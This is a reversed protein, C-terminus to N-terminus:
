RSGFFRKIQKLKEDFVMSFYADKLVCQGGNYDYELYLSYQQSDNKDKMVLHLSFLSDRSYFRSKELSMGHKKSDYLFLGLKDILRMGSAGDKLLGSLCLRIKAGADPNENVIKSLVAGSYGAMAGESIQPYGPGYSFIVTLIIFLTANLIKELMIHVRDTKILQTRKVAM